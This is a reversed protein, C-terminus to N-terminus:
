LAEGRRVRRAGTPVDVERLPRDTDVRRVVGAVDLFLRLRLCAIPGHREELRRRLNKSRPLQLRSEVLPLIEDKAGDHARGRIRPVENPALELRSLLVGSQSLPDFLFPLAATSAREPEV